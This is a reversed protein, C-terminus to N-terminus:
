GTYDLVTMLQLNKGSFIHLIGQGNEVVYRRAGGIKTFSAVVLGEFSYDGGQKIVWDGIHFEPEPQSM